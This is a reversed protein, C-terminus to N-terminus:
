KITKEEIWKELNEIFDFLLSHYSGTISDTDNYDFNKWDNLFRELIQFLDHDIKELEKLQSQYDYSKNSCFNAAFYKGIFFDVASANYVKKFLTTSTYHKKIKLIEENTLKNVSYDSLFDNENFGLNLFEPLMKIHDLCNGIHDILNDSFIRSLKESDKISLTLGSGIFVDKTRLYIHLLEHTFSAPDINDFPVFIITKGSKSFSLYDPRKEKRIEIVHVMRLSNWLELNRNDLLGNTDM